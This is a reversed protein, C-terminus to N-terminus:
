REKLLNRIDNIITTFKLMQTCLHEHRCQYLPQNEGLPVLPVRSQTQPHHHHHTSQGTGEVHLFSVHRTEHYSQNTEKKPEQNSWFGRVCDSSPSLALPVCRSARPQCRWTANLAQVVEDLALQNGLGAIFIDGQQNEIVDECRASLMLFQDQYDAVTAAEFKHGHQFVETGRWATTGNKHLAM